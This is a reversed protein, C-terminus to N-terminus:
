SPPVSLCTTLAAPAGEAEPPWRRGQRPLAPSPTVPRTQHTGSGGGRRAGYAELLMRPGQTEEQLWEQGMQEKWSVGGLGSRPRVGRTPSYM